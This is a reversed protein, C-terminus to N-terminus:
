LGRVAGSVREQFEQASHFGPPVSLILEATEPMDGNARFFTPRPAGLTAAGLQEPATWLGSWERGHQVSM